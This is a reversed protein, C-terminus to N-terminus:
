ETLMCLSDKPSNIVPIAYHHHYEELWSLKIKLPLTFALRSFHQLHMCNAQWSCNNEINKQKM